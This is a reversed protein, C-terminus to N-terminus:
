DNIVKWELLVGNDMRELDILELKCIENETFGFGDVLTPSTKGGIIINGIFVYIRDVLGQSIMSWNLTGGGEVMLRNIGKNKLISLLEPLNVQDKGTIIIEALKQLKKVRELRASQSTAIICKGQGKRFIDAYLPTRAKSDVIIRIPDKNIRARRTESKITLSPNDALVTGIGVMIADASARLEDVREFDKNGSIRVQKRKFTSIKGDASMASNIFVFPRTM